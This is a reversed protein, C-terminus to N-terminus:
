EDWTTKKYFDEFITALDAQKETAFIHQCADRAVEFITERKLGFTQAALAYERSLSTVFVGADDTCISLPHSLSHLTRFHHLDYSPVSAATVNSTLCIEVPIKNQIVRNQIQENMFTAHGLRDPHFDLIRNSEENNEVEAFHVATKLGIKKAYELAPLLRDFSGKTPNGSFDIGKVHSTFERAIAVTEMASELSDERNISLLIYPFCEFNEKCADIGAVVSEVYSRKTMGQANNKPGTRIELYKVNESAFDEVMEKTIRFITNNDTTVKTIVQFLEFCSKLDRNSKSTVIRPIGKKTCLEGITTDRISGNLHAHLEVKPVSKCFQLLADDVQIRSSKAREM